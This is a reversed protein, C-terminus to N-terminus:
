AAGRGVGAGAQFTRRAHGSDYRFATLPAGAAILDANTVEREPLYSGTAARRAGKGFAAPRFTM